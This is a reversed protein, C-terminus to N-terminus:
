TTRVKDYVFVDGKFDFKFKHKPWDKLCPVSPLYSREKTVEEGEFVRMEQTLAKGCAALFFPYPTIIFGGTGVKPPLTVGVVTNYSMCPHSSLMLFM